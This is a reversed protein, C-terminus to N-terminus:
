HDRGDDDNGAGDLASCHQVDVVEHGLVDGIWDPQLLNNLSFAIWQTSM